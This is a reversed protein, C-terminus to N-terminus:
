IAGWSHFPSFGEKEDPTYESPTMKRSTTEPCCNLTDDVSVVGGARGSFCVLRVAGLRCRFHFRTMARQRSGSGVRLNRPPPSTACASAGDRVQLRTSAIAAATARATTEPM